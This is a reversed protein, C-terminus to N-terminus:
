NYATQIKFFLKISYTHACPRFRVGGDGLMLVNVLTMIVTALRDQICQCTATSWFLVRDKDPYCKVRPPQLKTRQGRAM